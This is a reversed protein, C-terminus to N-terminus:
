ENKGNKLDEKINKIITNSYRGIEKLKDIYMSAQPKTIIDKQYIRIVINPVTTFNIRLIKCANMAKKDDTILNIKNELCLVINCPVQPPLPAVSGGM